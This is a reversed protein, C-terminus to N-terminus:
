VYQQLKYSTFLTLALSKETRATHSQCKLQLITYSAFPLPETVVQFSLPFISM